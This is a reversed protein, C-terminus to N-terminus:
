SVGGQDIRDVETGAVQSQLHHRLRDVGRRLDSKVTGLPLGTREAIESHSLEGYFALELLSRMREPLHALADAVMMRDAIQDLESEHAPSRHELHAAVTGIDRNSRRLQEIVKFRAIGMLWGGLSGRNQDYGDRSRWAAVFTEQTADAALDSPLSRRCFSFVLSGYREYAKELSRPTGAFFEGDIVRDQKSQLDLERSNADEDPPSMLLM